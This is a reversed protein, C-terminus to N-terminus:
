VVVKIFARDEDSLVGMKYRILAASIYCDGLARHNSSTELSARRVCEDTAPPLLDGVEMYMPGIDIVRFGVKSKSLKGHPRNSESIFPREDSSQKLFGLDFTGVNKGALTISDGVVEVIQGFLYEMARFPSTEFHIGSATTKTIHNISLIDDILGNNVHMKMVYPSITYQDQVVLCQGKPLESLPRQYLDGGDIVFAGEIISNVSPRLGTTELDFNVHM